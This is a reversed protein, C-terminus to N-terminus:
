IVTILFIGGFTMNLFFYTLFRIKSILPVIEYTVLGLCFNAFKNLKKIFKFQVSRHFIFVSSLIFM